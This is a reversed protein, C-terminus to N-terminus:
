LLKKLTKKKISEIMTNSCYTYLEVMSFIRTNEM